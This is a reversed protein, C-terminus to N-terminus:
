QTEQVSGRNVEENTGVVHVDMNYVGPTFRWYPEQWWDKQHPPDVWWDDRRPTPKIEPAVGRLKEKIVEWQEKTPRDDCAEVFGSLWTVFQSNDM